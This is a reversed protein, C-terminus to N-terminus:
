VFQFWDCQSAFHCSVQFASSVKFNTSITFCSGQEKAFPGCLSPMRFSLVAPRSVSSHMPQVDTTCYSRVTTKRDMSILFKEAASHPFAILPLKRFTRCKIKRLNGRSLKRCKAIRLIGAGVTLLSWHATLSQEL